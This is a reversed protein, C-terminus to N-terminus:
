QSESSSLEGDKYTDTRELVSSGTEENWHYINEKYSNTASDFDTVSSYKILQNNDDYYEVRLLTTEDNDYISTTHHYNWEESVSSDSEYSSTDDSVAPASYDAAPASYNAAPASYNAAPATNDAAFSNAIGIESGVNVPSDVAATYNSVLMSNQDLVNYGITTGANVSGNDAAVPGAASATNNVNRPIKTSQVGAKEAAAIDSYGQATGLTRKEKIGYKIYHEVISSIDYGFAAKVDSYSEAYLLPDFLVGETRGEYVGSTLYHNVYASSNNGFAKALDDYAAKYAEVDIILSDQQNKVLVNAYSKPNLEAASVSMVNGALLCLAAGMVIGKKLKM